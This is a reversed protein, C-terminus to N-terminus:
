GAKIEPMMIPNHLSGRYFKHMWAGSGGRLRCSEDMQDLFALTELAESRLWYDARPKGKRLPPTMFERALIRTQQPSASFIVALGTLDVYHDLPLLKIEALYAEFDELSYLNTNHPNTGLVRFRDRAIQRAKSISVELRSAIGTMTITGPMGQASRARADRLAIVESRAYEAVRNKGRTQILLVGTQRLLNRATPETVNLILAAGWLTVHADPSAAETALRDRLAEVEHLKAMMPHEMSLRYWHVQKLPIKHLEVGLIEAVRVRDIMVDQM